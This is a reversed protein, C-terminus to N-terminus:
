IDPTSREAPRKCCLKEPSLDPNATRDAAIPATVSFASIATHAAAGADGHRASRSQPGLAKGDTTTSQLGSRGVAPGVAPTGAPFETKKFCYRLTAAGYWCGYVAEACTAFISDHGYVDAEHCMPPVVYGRLGLWKIVLQLGWGAPFFVHFQESPTSPTIM